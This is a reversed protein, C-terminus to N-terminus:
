IKRLRIEPPMEAMNAPVKILRAAFTEMIEPTDPVPELEVALDQNVDYWYSHYPDLRKELDLQDEPIFRALAKRDDKDNLRFVQFYESESIAFRDLWVPRQSNIIVSIKKSRGQTLIDRFARNNAGIMYGEDIYLGTNENQWISRMYAEVADDEGSLVRVRYLGPETPVPDYISTEILGPIKNISEDGKYDFVIWPRKDLDQQSLQFLGAVTKGSGTKGVILLRQGPEPFRLNAM